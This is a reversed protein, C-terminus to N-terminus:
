CVMEKLINVSHQRERELRLGCHAYDINLDFEGLVEGIGLKDVLTKSRNFVSSVMDFTIQKEFGLGVMLGHFTSTFVIESAQIMGIWENARLENRPINIDCWNNTFGLSVLQM